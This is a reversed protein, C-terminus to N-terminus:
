PSKEQMSFNHNHEHSFFGQKLTVNSGLCTPKNTNDKKVLRENIYQQKRRWKTNM